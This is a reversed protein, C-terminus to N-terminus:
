VNVCDQISASMNFHTLLTARFLGHQHVVLARGPTTTTTHSSDLPQATRFLSSLYPFLSLAVELRKQLDQKRDDVGRLDSLLM